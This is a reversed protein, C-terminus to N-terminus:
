WVDGARWDCTLEAQPDLEASLEVGVPLVFLTGDDDPTPTVGSPTLV